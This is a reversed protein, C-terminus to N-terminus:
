PVSNIPAAHRCHRAAAWAVAAGRTYGWPSVQQQSGLLGRLMFCYDLQAQDEPLSTSILQVQLTRQVRGVHRRSGEVTCVSCALMDAIGGSRTCCLNLLACCMALCSGFCRVALVAYVLLLLCLVFAQLVSTATLAASCMVSRFAM